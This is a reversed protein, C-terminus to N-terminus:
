SKPAGHCHCFQFVQNSRSVYVSVVSSRNVCFGPAAPRGQSKGLDPLHRIQGQPLTLLLLVVGSCVMRIATLWESSLDYNMFLSQSCVGSIGWGISGLSAYLFGKTTNFRNM